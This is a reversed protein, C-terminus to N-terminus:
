AQHLSYFPPSNDSAFFSFETHLHTLTLRTLCRFANNQQCVPIIYPSISPQLRSKKAVTYTGSITHGKNPILAFAVKSWPVEPAYKNAPASKATLGLINSLCGDGNSFTLVNEDLERESYYIPYILSISFCVAILLSLVVKIRARMEYIKFYIDTLNCRFHDGSCDAKEAQSFM